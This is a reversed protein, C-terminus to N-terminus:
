FTMLNQVQIWHILLLTQPNRRLRKHVLQPLLLSKSKLLKGPKQNQLPAELGKVRVKGVVKANPQDKRKLKKLQQLNHRLNGRRHLEHRERVEVLQVGERLQEEPQGAAQVLQELQAQHNEKLLEEEKLRLAGRLHEEEVELAEDEGLLEHM